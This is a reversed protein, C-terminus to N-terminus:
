IVDHLSDIKSKRLVNVETVVETQHVLYGKFYTINFPRFKVLIYSSM